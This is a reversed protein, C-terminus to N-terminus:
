VRVDRVSLAVWGRRIVAILSAVELADFFVKAVGTVGPGVEVIQNRRRVLAPNFDDDIKGRVMRSRVVRALKARKVVVSSKEAVVGAIRVAVKMVIPVDRVKIVAVLQLVVRKEIQGIEILLM